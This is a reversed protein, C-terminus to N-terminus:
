ILGREAFSTYCDDTFIVHDNLPIGIIEGADKLQKTMSLDEQSPESNGSPHNHAVIISAASSVIASRYVERAHALSSNLLGETIVDVGIVRNAANLSFTIFRERIQQKFLFLFNSYIDEPGRVYVKEQSMEPYLKGCDTFKFTTTKISTSM